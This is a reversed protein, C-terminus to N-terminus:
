GKVSQLFAPVERALRGRGLDEDSPMNAGCVPQREAPRHRDAM